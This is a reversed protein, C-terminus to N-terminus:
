VIAGRSSFLGSESAASAARLLIPSPNTHFCPFFPHSRQYQARGQHRQGHPHCGCRRGHFRHEIASSCRSEDLLLQDPHIRLHLRLHQGLCLGLGAYHVIIFIFVPQFPNGVVEDPRAHDFAIVIDIGIAALFQIGKFGHAADNGDILAHHIREIVIFQGKGQAMFHLMAFSVMGDVADHLADADRNGYVKGKAAM